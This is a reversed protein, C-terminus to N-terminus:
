WGTWKRPVPWPALSAPSLEPPALLRLQSALAQGAEQQSHWLEMLRADHESEMWAEPDRLYLLQQEWLFDALSDHVALLAQMGAQLQPFCAAQLDHAEALPSEQGRRAPDPFAMNRQLAVWVSYSELAEMLQQAKERRQQLHRLRLTVAASALAAAGLAAAMWLVHYLWNSM